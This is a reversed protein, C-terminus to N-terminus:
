AAQSNQTAESELEILAAIVENITPVKVSEDGDRILRVTKTAMPRAEPDSQRRIQSVRAAVAENTLRLRGITANIQDPKYRIPELMTNEVLDSM